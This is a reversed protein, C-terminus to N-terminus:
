LDNCWGLLHLYEHHATTTTALKLVRSYIMTTLPKISLLPWQRAALLQIKIKM